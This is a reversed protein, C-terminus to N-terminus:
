LCRNQACRAIHTPILIDCAGDHANTKKQFSSKTENENHSPLAIFFDNPFFLEQTSSTAHQLISSTKM